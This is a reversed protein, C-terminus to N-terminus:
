QTRGVKLLLLQLCADVCAEAAHKRAVALLATIEGVDAHGASRFTARKLPLPM